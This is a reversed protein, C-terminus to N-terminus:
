SVFRRMARMIPERARDAPLRTLVLGPAQGGLQPSSGSFWQRATVAGFSREIPLLAALATRFRPEVHPDTSDLAEGRAWQDLLRPDDIQALHMARVLGLLRLIEGTLEPFDLEAIPDPAQDPVGPSMEGIM